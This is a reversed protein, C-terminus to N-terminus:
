FWIGHHMELVKEDIRYGWAQYARWPYWFALWGCFALLAIWGMLAWPWVQPFAASLGLVTISAILTLVGAAIAHTLRWLKIVRRDLQRFDQASAPVISPTAAPSATQVFAPDHEGNGM